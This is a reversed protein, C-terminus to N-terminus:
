GDAVASLNEPSESLLPRAGEAIVDGGAAGKIWGGAAGVRMRPVGGSGGGATHLFVFNWATTLQEAPPLVAAEAARGRSVRGM